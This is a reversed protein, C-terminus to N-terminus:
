FSAAHSAANAKAAAIIAPAQAPDQSMGEATLVQVDDIGVFNLM